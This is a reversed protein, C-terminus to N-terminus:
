AIFISGVIGNDILYQLIEAMRTTGAPTHLERDLFWTKSVVFKHLVALFAHLFSEGLDRMVDFYSMLEEPLRDPDSSTLRHHTSNFALCYTDCLETYRERLVDPHLLTLWVWAADRLPPARLSSGGRLRLAVVDEEENTQNVWVDSCCIPGVSVMWKKSIASSFRIFDMLTALDSRLNTLHSRIHDYEAHPKLKELLIDLNANAINPQTIESTLADGCEGNCVEVKAMSCELNGSAATPCKAFRAIDRLEPSNPNPLDTHDEQIVSSHAHLSALARTVLHAHLTTLDKRPYPKLGRRYLDDSTATHVRPRGGRFIICTKPAEDELAAMSGPKPLAALREEINTPEAMRGELYQIFLVAADADSSEM